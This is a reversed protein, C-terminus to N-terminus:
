EDMMVPLSGTGPFDLYIRMTNQAFDERCALMRFYQVAFPRPFSGPGEGHRM